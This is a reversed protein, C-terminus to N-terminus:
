DPTKALCINRSLKLEISRQRPMWFAIRGSLCGSLQVHALHHLGKTM